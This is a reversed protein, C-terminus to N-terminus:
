HPRAARGRAPRRTRASKTPPAAGAAHGLARDLDAQQGLVFLKEKELVDRLFHHRTGLKKALDPLAYVAPNVARGLREEATHLAPSLAALGIEGVVFLDVDSDSREERCALSGYVFAVTIRPSFPALVEALVDALGATKALLGQLESFFPCDPHPQVYVRNGDRRRRLIGTGVLSALERQLSSPPVGLHKALDSLYWWREPHMLTAALIGQRTKPFLADLPRTKRM